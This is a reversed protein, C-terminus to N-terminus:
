RIKNKPSSDLAEHDVASLYPQIRKLFRHNEISISRAVNQQISKTRVLGRRPQTNAPTIKPKDIVEETESFTRKRNPQDSIIQRDQIYDNILNNVLIGPPALAPVQALPYQDPQNVIKQYATDLSKLMTNFDNSFHEFHTEDLKKQLFLSPRERLKQIKTRLKTYNFFLLPTRRDIHPKTLSPKKM